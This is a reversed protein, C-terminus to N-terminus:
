NNGLYIINQKSNCISNIENYKRPVSLKVKYNMMQIKNRDHLKTKCVYTHIKIAESKRKDKDKTM